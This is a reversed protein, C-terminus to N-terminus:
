DTSAYSDGTQSSRDVQTGLRAAAIVLLTSGFSLTMFVLAGICFYFQTNACTEPNM